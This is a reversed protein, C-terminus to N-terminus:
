SWRRARDRPTGTSDTKSCNAVSGIARRRDGLDVRRAQAGTLVDHDLHLTGVDVPQDAFVQPRHRPDSRVEDPPDRDRGQGVRRREDLEEGVRDDLLEVETDLGGVHEVDRRHEVVEALGAVDDGPRM